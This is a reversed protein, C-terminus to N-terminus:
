LGTAFEDILYRGDPQRELLVYFSTSTEKPDFVSTEHPTMDVTVFVNFGNSSKAYELPNINMEALAARKMGFVAGNKFFTKICNETCYKKMSEYDSKDFSYFFQETAYEPSKDDYGSMEPKTAGVASNINNESGDNFLASVMSQCLASGVLFFPIIAPAIKLAKRSGARIKEFRLRLKRKSASM